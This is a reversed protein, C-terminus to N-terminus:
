HNRDIKHRSFFRAASGSLQNHELAVTANGVPHGQRQALAM